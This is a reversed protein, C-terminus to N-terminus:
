MQRVMKVPSSDACGCNKCSRLYRGTLTCWRTPQYAMTGGCGPCPRRSSYGTHPTAGALLAAITVTTRERFHKIAQAFLSQSAALAPRM